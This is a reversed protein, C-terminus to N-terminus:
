WGDSEVGQTKELLDVILTFESSMFWDELFTKRAYVQMDSVTKEWETRSKRELLIRAADHCVLCKTVMIEAAHDDRLMDSREGLFDTLLPIDEDLFSEPSKKRMKLVTQAWEGRTKRAILIRNLSHCETCRDILLLKADDYKKKQPFEGVVGEGTHLIEGIIQEGEEDTIWMPSKERMRTVCSRWEDHTKPDTFVRGLTHCKSCKSEYLFKGKKFQVATGTEQAPSQSLFLCM